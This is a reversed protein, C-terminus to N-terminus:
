ELGMTIEEDTDPDNFNEIHGESACCKGYINRTVPSLLIVGSNRLSVALPLCTVLM